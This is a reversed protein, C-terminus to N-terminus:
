FGKTKIGLPTGQTGVGSSSSSPSSSSPSSSCKSKHHNNLWDAKQCEKSCYVVKRCGGCMFMSLLPAEISCTRCRKNQDNFDKYWDSDLLSNNNDDFIPTSDQPFLAEEDESTWSFDIKPTPVEFNYELRFVEPKGLNAYVQEITMNENVGTKWVQTNSTLSVITNTPQNYRGLLYTMVFEITKRPKVTINVNPNYGFSKIQEKLAENFPALQISMKEVHYRKVKPPRKEQSPVRRM